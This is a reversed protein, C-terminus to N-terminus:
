RAARGFSLRPVAVSGVRLYLDGEPSCDRPEIIRPGQRKEVRVDRPGYLIAGQM